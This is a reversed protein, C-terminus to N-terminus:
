SIRTTIQFIHGGDRWHSKTGLRKWDVFVGVGKEVVREAGDSVGIRHIWPAWQLLLMEGTSKLHIPLLKAM